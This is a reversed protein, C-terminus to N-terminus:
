DIGDWWNINSHNAPDVMEGLKPTILQVGAKEAAAITRIIPADWEHRGLDFTGRHVPLMARGNVDEHTQISEEPPMHVDKWMQGPGYAGVKVITLDFPGLEKGIKSFAKSYGTDGSFFIRHKNGVVAWSAWLTEQYDFFGRSSYHRSPTAVIKVGGLDVEQWWDLEEVLNEPVDWALLQPKNGLPVFIRTNNQALHTVTAKDLHDYHNHSIIVADIGSLDEISVPPRHFRKPGAFSFPSVRESLIPDTLIRKGDIEILVGAHGLWAGRLGPAAPSKLKAADISIVPIEGIPSQRLCDDFEEAIRGLSVEFSAEPEENVFKGAHFQKSSQMKVLTEESVPTSLMWGITTTLVVLAAISGFVVSVTWKLIRM